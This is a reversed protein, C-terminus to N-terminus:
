VNFRFSCVDGDQIIYDRSELRLRGSEKVARASGLAALDDFSFVEARIFGREIDSHIKGAAQRATSGRAVPWARVEDEGVTFFSILGLSRYVARALRHLGPEELGYSSLFAQQESEPLRAIEREVPCCFEVPETSFERCRDVLESRGPYDPGAMQDESVNVAVVIPRWTALGYGNMLTAHAPEFGGLSRALYAPRGSELSERVRELAAIDHEKRPGGRPNRMRELTAEVQALDAIVLDAVVTDLDGVVRCDGPAAAFAGLTIVVADAKKALGVAGAASYGPSDHLQIQAYTTKRPHYMKSLFDIRADPVWAVGAGNSRSNGARSGTLLAFLSSKGSGPLGVLMVNM